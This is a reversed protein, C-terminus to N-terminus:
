RLFPAFFGGRGDSLSELCRFPEWHRYGNKEETNELWIEMRRQSILIAFGLLLDVDEQSNLMPKTMHIMETQFDILDNSKPTDAVDGVTEPGFGFRLLSYLDLQAPAIVAHEFDLLSAIGTDNWIMNDMTMDGHNLVKEAKPLCTFFRNLIDTLVRGQVHNIVNKKVLDETGLLAEERRFSSYWAREAAMGKAKNIDASHVAQLIDFAQRFGKKRQQWTMSAWVERLNTGSIERSLSWEYGDTVGTAINVPYGVIDPLIKSLEVERHLRSGNQTVSLRLVLGGALWTKNTWGNGTRATLFDIDYRSFIEAAIEEQRNM